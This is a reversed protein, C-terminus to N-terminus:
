INFMIIITNNRQQKKERSWQLLNEEKVAWCRWDHFGIENMTHITYKYESGFLHANRFIVSLLYITLLYYDFPKRRFDKLTAHFNNYIFFNFSCRCLFFFWCLQATGIPVIMNEFPLLYVCVCWRERQCM